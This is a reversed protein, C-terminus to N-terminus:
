QRSKARQIEERIEGALADDSLLREVLTQLVAQSTVRSLGSVEAADMRWRELQRHQQPSLDVTHRVPKTLVASREVRREDKAPAPAQEPAAQQRQKSRMARAKLEDAKSM